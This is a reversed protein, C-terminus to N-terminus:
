CYSVLTKRTSSIDPALPSHPVGEYQSKSAWASQRTTSRRPQRHWCCPCHRLNQLEDDTDDTDEAAAWWDKMSLSFINYPYMCYACSLNAPNM